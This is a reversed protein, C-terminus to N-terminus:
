GRLWTWAAKAATPPPQPDILRACGYRTLLVNELEACVAALLAEPNTRIFFHGGSIKRIRVPGRGLESWGLAAQISAIPDADGCFATVPCQLRDNSGIRYTEIAAADARLMPLVARLLETDEYHQRPIGGVDNVAAIFQEDPLHRIRPRRDINHPPRHAAVFLAAPVRQFERQLILSLEFAVLAGMSYGFLVVPGEITAIANAAARAIEYVSTMAPEDSRAQRGPLQMPVCRVRDPLLHLWQAYSSSTGGAFPFCVFNLDAADDDNLEPFWRGPVRRPRVDTAKVVSNPVQMERCLASNKSM